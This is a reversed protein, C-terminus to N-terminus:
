CRRLSGRATVHLARTRANYAETVAYDRRIRPSMDPTIIAHIVPFASAAILVAARFRAINCLIARVFSVRMRFALKAPGRCLSARRIVTLRNASPIAFAGAYAGIEARFFAKDLTIGTIGTQPAVRAIIGASSILPGLCVDRMGISSSKVVIVTPFLKGREDAIV